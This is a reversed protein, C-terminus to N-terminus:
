AREKKVLKALTAQQRFYERVPLAPSGLVSVGAPVDRM